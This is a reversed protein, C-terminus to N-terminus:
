ICRPSIILRGPLVAHKLPFRSNERVCKSRNLEFLLMDPDDDDAADDDDVAAFLDNIDLDLEDPDSLEVDSDFPEVADDISEYLFSLFRNVFLLPVPEYNNSQVTRRM